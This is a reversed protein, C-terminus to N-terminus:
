KGRSRAWCPRVRWSPRSGHATDCLPSVSHCPCNLDGELGPILDIGLESLINPFQFNLANGYTNISIARVCAYSREDFSRIRKIKVPPCHFSDHGQVDTAIMVKRFTCKQGSFFRLRIICIAIDSCMARRATRMAATTICAAPRQRYSVTPFHLLYKGVSLSQTRQM